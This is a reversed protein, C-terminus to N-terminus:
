CPILHWYNVAVKDQQHVVFKPRAIDWLWAWKKQKLEKSQVKSLLCLKSIFVRIKQLYSQKEQNRVGLRTSIYRPMVGWWPGTETCCSALLHPAKKGLLLQWLGLCPISMLDTGVKVQTIGRWVQMQFSIKYRFDLSYIRITKEIWINAFVWQDLHRTKSTGFVFICPVICFGVMNQCCLLFACVSVSCINTSKGSLLWIIGSIRGKGWLQKRRPLDQAWATRRCIGCSREQGMWLHFSLQFFHALRLGPESVAHPVTGSLQHQSQISGRWEGTLLVYFHTYVSRCVLACQEWFYDWLACGAWFCGLLLQPTLHLCAAIVAAMHVAACGKKWQQAWHALQQPVLALSPSRLLNIYKWDWKLGLFRFKM